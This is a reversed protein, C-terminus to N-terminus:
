TSSCTSCALAREERECRKAGSVTMNKASKAGTLTAAGASKGFRMSKTKWNDPQFEADAIFVTLPRGDGTGALLASLAAACRLHCAYDAVCLVYAIGCHRSLVVFAKIVCNLCGHQAAAACRSGSHREDICVEVSGTARCQLSIFCRVTQQALGRLCTKCNESGLREFHSVM